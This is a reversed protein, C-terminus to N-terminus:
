KNEQAIVADRAVKADRWAQAEILCKDHDAIIDVAVPFPLAILGTGQRHHVGAVADGTPALTTDHGGPVAGSVAPCAARGPGRVLVRDRTVTVVTAKANAKSRIKEVAANIGTTIRNAKAIIRAQEHAVGRDFAADLQNDYWVLVRWVAFGLALLLLFGGILKAKWSIVM